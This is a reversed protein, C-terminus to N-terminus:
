RIEMRGPHNLRWGNGDREVIAPEIIYVEGASPETCYYYGKYLSAFEQSRQLRPRPLIIGAGSGDTDEVFVFPASGDTALVLLNTRFDAEVGKKRNGGIHNLYEGVTAPFSPEPDIPEARVESRLPEVSAAPAFEAARALKKAEESSRKASEIRLGLDDQVRALNAGVSEAYKKTEGLVQRLKEVSQGSRKQADELQGLRIRLGSFLYLLGGLTVLALLLSLTSVINGYTLNKTRSPAAADVIKESAIEIGKVKNKLPELDELTRTKDISTRMKQVDDSLQNFDKKIRADDASEAAEQAKKFAETVKNQLGEKELRLREEEERTRENNDPNAGGSNGNNSIATSSAAHNSNRSNSNSNDRRLNTTTQSSKHNHNSQGTSENGRLENENSNQLTPFGLATGAMLFVYTLSVATLTLLLHTIPRNMKM